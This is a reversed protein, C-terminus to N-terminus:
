RTRANTGRPVQAGQGLGTHPHCRAPLSSQKDWSVMVRAVGGSVGPLVDLIRKHVPPTHEV